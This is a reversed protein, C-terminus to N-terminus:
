SAYTPEKSRRQMRGSIQRGAAGPQCAAAALLHLVGRVRRGAGFALLGKRYQMASWGRLAAAIQRLRGRRRWQANFEQPTVEPQRTRRARACAIAYAIGQRQLDYATAVSSGLHMRYLHLVADLNALKGVDAMRLFFDFDEGTTQIRYGGVNRVADMRLMVTPNCISVIGKLLQDEIEAHATPMPVTRWQKAGLLFAIQTGLLVVDAHAQMFRLQAGLRAPLSIDDADMIAAFPTDCNDFCRNRTAGTGRNDQHIVMVRDDHLTNLYDASGDTSGDNIIVLRFDRFEQRLISDVARPLYPRANYVPLTVTLLRM